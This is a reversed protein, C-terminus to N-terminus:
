LGKAKPFHQRLSVLTQLCMKRRHNQSYHINALIIPVYLIQCKKTWDTFIDFMIITGVFLLWRLTSWESLQTKNGWEIWGDNLGGNSLVRKGRGNASFLRGDGNTLGECNYWLVLHHWTVLSVRAVREFRCFFAWGPLHLLFLEHWLHCEHPLLEFWFCNCPKLWLDPIFNSCTTGQDNTNM